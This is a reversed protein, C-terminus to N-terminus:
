DRGRRGLALAGIIAMLLVVSILEFVMSYSGLLAKGVALMSGTNIKVAAAPWKTKLGVVVLGWVLMGGGIFGFFPGLGIARGPKDGQEPEALMVAFAIAVGVAGVYILIEMLALFPSNLFYYLGAVGILSLCLGTVARILSKANVAILAGIVTAAGIALFVLGGLGQPTLLEQTM